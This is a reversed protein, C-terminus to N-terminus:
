PAGAMRASPNAVVGPTPSAGALPVSGSPPEAGPPLPTINVKFQDLNKAGGLEAIHKFIGPVSFESRLQQDGAVALFIEKWVDLMAVRDIPLTGDHIPFHFDGVLMEPSILVGQRDKDYFAEPINIPKSLGEMGVLSLYFEQELFQQNNITLQETLDVIGQASILRAHSALRSAAAEGSTRVETATKRGGSDQLGRINDTISSLSDGLRMMMEFDRVHGGTVDMITMQQIVSRIDQGYAAKKLRIIKGPEPDKLDQMEVMSPNVIIMNNLATRVNAIHSNIFWSLTDQIPNSYDSLGPQGFGYGLTYPEIVCVPHMGHDLDLPEAQIIQSKNAITFLWKEPVESRGLGLEAPIIEITGQDIQYSSGGWYEASNSRLGPHSNGGSLLNRNSDQKSRDSTTQAPIADIWKVLGKSEAKKLTHKGDFNRWFVFEGRRNVEVMPVRPDPFFMFPDQANVENGAYVIREEKTKKIEDGLFVNLFGWRPVKKRVTRLAKEEKWATRLIGLGYTEGDTLFQFLHRVLRTHDANYQNVLEMMQANAQTEKKYSGVQFIPKRGCFTHILYTVITSITAFSYPITISLAKPAKGKDQHNEKLKQEWNELNIYAQAKMEAIQWRAYFKEMERESMTIRELLYSLVKSHLESGPKLRLIPKEIAEASTLRPWQSKPDKGLGTVIEESM